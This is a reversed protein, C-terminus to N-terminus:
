PPCRRDGAAHCIRLQETGSPVTEILTRFSAWDPDKRRPSFHRLSASHRSLLREEDDLLEIEVHGQIRGYRSRTKEIRGEIKLGKDTWEYSVRTPILLSSERLQISLTRATFSQASAISAVAFALLITLGLGQIRFRM